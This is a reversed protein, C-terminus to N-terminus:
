EAKKQLVAMYFGDTGTRHPSLLLGQQQADRKVTDPLGQLQADAFGTQEWGNNDQCFCAIQQENECPLLSCTVYILRGGPRVYPCATNLVEQQDKLRQQLSNATLRWKADPSRRWTGTGTCPADVFVCDMKGNLADLRDTEHAQIVQVNRAGSRELRPWLDRMRAAHKDWAFIQGRNNMHDALALTKGGAGACFDLVQEGPAIGSLQVTLQSGEDQIEVEGKIYLRDDQVPPLRGKDMLPLRLGKDAFPMVEPQFRSLAKLAEERATKLGNVRLDLPARGALAQGEAIAEEGFRTEFEPWLWQPVNAREWPQCPQGGLGALAAKEIESLPPPAFRDDKFLSEMAGIDYGWLDHFVALLVARPAHDEMQAAYYLRHRLADYFLNGIVVRDGSGAFRHARGWEKLLEKAPRGSQDFQELIDIAAALRGGNRM